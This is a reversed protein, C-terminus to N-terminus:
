QVGLKAKLRKNADVMVALVPDTLGKKINFSPINRDVPRDSSYCWWYVLQPGAEVIQDCLMKVWKPANPNWYSDMSDPTEAYIKKHEPNDDNAISPCSAEGLMLPKGIRRAAEVYQAVNMFASKGGPGAIPEGNGHNDIGYHIDIVDVASKAYLLDLAKNQEEITDRIWTHKTYQNWQCGRLHDGGNNVLRLPDDTKIRRAVDDYFRSVDLLSPMRQGQFVNNEPSIDASNTIENGIEWMMVTKRNKYREVITDLYRYMEKRSRSDPNAILERLHEDGYQWKGVVIAADTFNACGLDFVLRIQNKDCLDLATDLAKFYVADRKAPDEFTSRLDWIGWPSCFARISRCGMAHIEALARDQSAVMDRYEQTGGKGEKLLNFPEWFLDFKNFSIEAFPKGDLFFRDSRISLVDNKTLAAAQVVPVVLFLVATLAAACHIRSTM